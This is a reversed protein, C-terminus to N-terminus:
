EREAKKLQVLADLQAYKAHELDQQKIAGAKFRDYGNV